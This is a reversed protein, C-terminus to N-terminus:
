GTEDDCDDEAHWVRCTHCIELVSIAALRCSDCRCKRQRSVMERRHRRRAGAVHPPPRLAGGVTMALSDRREAVAAGGHGSDPTVVCVAHHGTRGLPLLRRRRCRRRDLRCRPTWVDHRPSATGDRVAHRTCHPCLAQATKSRTQPNTAEKQRSTPPPFIHPAAYSCFGSVGPPPGM